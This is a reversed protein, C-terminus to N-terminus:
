YRPSAGFTVPQSSREGGEYQFTVVGNAVYHNRETASLYDFLVKITVACETRPPLRVVDLPIVLPQGSRVTRTDVRLKYSVAGRNCPITEAILDEQYLGIETFTLLAEHVPILRDTNNSLIFEVNTHSIGEPSVGKCNFRFQNVEVEPKDTHPRQTPQKQKEAAQGNTESELDIDKILRALDRVRTTANPEPKTNSIRLQTPATRERSIKADPLAAARRLETENAIQLNDREQLGNLIYIVGGAVSLAATVLALKQKNEM